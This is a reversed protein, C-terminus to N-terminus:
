YTKTCRNLKRGYLFVHLYFMEKNLNHKDNHFKVPHVFPISHNYVRWLYHGGITGSFDKHGFVSPLYIGNLLYINEKRELFYFITPVAIELFVKHKFFVASMTQFQFALQGGPVYFFDAWKSECLKSGNNNRLFTSLSKNFMGPHQFLENIAQSCNQLSNEWWSWANTPLPKLPDAIRSRKDKNIWLKKFDLKQLVWWNVIMDDNTFLYGKFHPYLRIAQGLCEYSYYGKHLNVHIFPYDEKPKSIGCVTINTFAQSYFEELVPFSEYFPYHYVILLLIDRLNNRKACHVSHNHSSLKKDAEKQTQHGLLLFLFLM